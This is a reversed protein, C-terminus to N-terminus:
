HYHGNDHSEQANEADDIASQLVAILGKMQNITLATLIEHAPPLSNKDDKYSFRLAYANNIHTSDPEFLDFTEIFKFKNEISM